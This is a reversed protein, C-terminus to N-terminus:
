TKVYHQSRFSIHNLLGFVALIHPLPLLYCLRLFRRRKCARRVSRTCAGDKRPQYGEVKLSGPNKSSEFVPLKTSRLTKLSESRSTQIPYGFITREFIIARSFYLQSHNHNCGTHCTACLTKGHNEYFCPFSSLSRQGELSFFTDSSDHHLM